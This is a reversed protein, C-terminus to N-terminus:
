CGSKLGSPLPGFPTMVFGIGARRNTSIPDARACASHCVITREALALSTASILRAMVAVPRRLLGGLGHDPQDESALRINPLLLATSLCRCMWWRLFLYM